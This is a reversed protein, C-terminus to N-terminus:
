SPSASGLDSASGPASASGLDPAPGPYPASGPYPAFLYLTCARAVETILRPWSMEHAQTPYRIFTAFDMFTSFAMRFCAAVAVEPDARPMRDSRSRIMATFLERVTSMVEAGREGLGSVKGSNLLLVGNLVGLDEFITGLRTIAVGVFAAPDTESPWADPGFAERARAAFRALHADHVAAFLGDKDGFRQYIVGVSIGARSSVDLVRFADWGGEALLAAAADLIRNMTAISREQQPPRAVGLGESM